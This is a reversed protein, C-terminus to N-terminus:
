VAQQSRRILFTPFSGMGQLACELPVQCIGATVMIQLEKMNEMKIILLIVIAPIDVSYDSETAFVNPIDARPNAVIRPIAEDGIAYMWFMDLVYQQLVHFYSILLYKRIRIYCLTFLLADEYVHTCIEAANAFTVDDNAM